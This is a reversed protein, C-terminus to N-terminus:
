NEQYLFHLSLLLICVKKHMDKVVLLVPSDVEAMNRYLTKLSSGHIATSYVLQWQYGHTRAPMHAALQKVFSNSM